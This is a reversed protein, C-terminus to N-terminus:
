SHCTQFSNMETLELPSTATTGPMKGAERSSKPAKLVACRYTKLLAEETQEAQPNGPVAPILPHPPPLHEFVLPLWRQTM